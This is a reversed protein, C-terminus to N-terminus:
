SAIKPTEIGRGKKEESRLTVRLIECPLWLRMRPGWTGTGRCVIVSMRGIRYLGALMPYRLEVLYGFPWIQGGHTHGSLMLDVGAKAAKDAQWPTHSLLITAGRPRNALMGTVADGDRGSSHNATLDDIGALVLGPRVERWSNRLVHISAGNFPGVDAAERGHFEHNGLVAWVGLPASLRKLDALLEGQPMDHGEFIDGLLVVMDPKQEQVQAIREELWRTGLLPGLHLDSVGVVVTGDMEVPLGPLYLEYKHVVPARVGQVVAIVSLLGGLVLALGRLSPAWRPMVLGFGTVFDVALLCVTTLFLVAMWDMGTLEIVAATMGTSDHGAFRGLAFVAWLIVCVGILLKPPVRRKLFPVSSARWFVYVHMVTVAGLLIIGFM